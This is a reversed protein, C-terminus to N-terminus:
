LGREDVQARMAAIEQPSYSGAAWNHATLNDSPSNGDRGLGSMLEVAPSGGASATDKVVVDQSTFDGSKPRPVHLRGLADITRRTAKEAAPTTIYEGM